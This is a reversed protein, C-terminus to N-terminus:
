KKKTKWDSFYSGDVFYMVLERSHRSLTTQAKLAGQFTNQLFFYEHGAELEM